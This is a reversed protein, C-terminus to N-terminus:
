VPPDALTKATGTTLELAAETAKKKAAVAYLCLRYAAVFRNASPLSGRPDFHRSFVRALYTAEGVAVWRAVRERTDGNM